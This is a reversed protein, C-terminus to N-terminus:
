EWPTEFVGLFRHLSNDEMQSITSKVNCSWGTTANSSAYGYLTYQIQGYIDGKSHDVLLAGTVVDTIDSNYYVGDNINAPFFQNLDLEFYDSLKGEELVVSVGTPKYISEWTIPDYLIAFIDVRVSKGWGTINDYFLRVRVHHTTSPDAEVPTIIVPSGPFQVLNIVNRGEQLTVEQELEATSENNKFVRLVGSTKDRPIYIMGNITDNDFTYKYTISEDARWQMNVTVTSFGKITEVGDKECGGLLLTLLLASLGLFYKMNM